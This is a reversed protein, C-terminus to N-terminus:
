AATRMLVGATSSIFTHAVLFLQPHQAESCGCFGRSEAQHRQHWESVFWMCCARSSPRCDVSCAEHVEIGRSRFTPRCYLSLIWLQQKQNKYRALIVLHLLLLTKSFSTHLVFCKPHGCGFYTLGGTRECGPPTNFRQWICPWKDLCSMENKKKLRAGTGESVLKKQALVRQLPGESSLFCMLLILAACSSQQFVLLMCLAISNACSSHFSVCQM